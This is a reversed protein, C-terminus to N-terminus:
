AKLGSLAISQIFFRQTPIFLVLVPVITYIAGAMLMAYRAGAELMFFSLGLTVTMKELSNLFLIPGSLDNWSFTFVFVALAALATKSLPLVVTAYIRLHSSGDMRAADFLDQPIGLFFQRLLFIGYGGGFLSAAFFAPVWLPLQSNLWGVRAMEIFFPIMRAQYPMLMTAIAAIFFFGRGRFRFRALAFAAMSCSLLQGVTALVGIKLSNWIFLSFPASTWADAFNQLTPRTPLLRPPWAFVLDPEKFASSLMWLFPFLVVVAAILLLLYTLSLRLARRPVGARGSM